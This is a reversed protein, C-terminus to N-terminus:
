RVLVGNSGDGNSLWWRLSWWILMIEGGVSCGGANCWVTGCLGVVM